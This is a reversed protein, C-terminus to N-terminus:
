IEIETEEDAVLRSYVQDMYRIIDRRSMIGVIKGSEVIPVRRIRHAAFYNIVEVVLTDPSYTIVNSTMVEAARTDAAHGSVAFNVVDHETVIGVLNDDDDVIPLGSIHWRLLLKIVDIVLMDEKATIVTSTMIERVMQKM